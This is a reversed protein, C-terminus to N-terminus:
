ATEVDHRLQRWGRLNGLQPEPSASPRAVHELPSAHMPSASVLRAYLELDKAPDRVGDHTLYSVRACRAASVKLVDAEDLSDEASIYPTHWQGATLEAPTSDLLATRMAEACARIEPQALPSCRQEFFNDWETSTVIVTQWMFPELLRNSLQKHLGAKMLEEAAVLASDRARLWVRELESSELASGAQMGPQNAGWELPMAPDNRVTELQKAVPIARSSASNRSFVRHTNFEALVYRHMKVELTSLRIGSPGVSDAVIRASPQSM